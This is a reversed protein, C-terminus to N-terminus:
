IFLNRNSVVELKGDKIKKLIESWGDIKNMFFELNDVIEKDLYIKKIKSNKIGNLSAWATTIVSKWLEKYNGSLKELNFFTNNRLDLQQLNPFTKLRKLHNIKNGELYLSEISKFKKKDAKNAGFLTDASIDNWIASIRKLNKFNELNKIINLWWDTQKDICLYEINKSTKPDIRNGYFEVLFNNSLNLEKIKSGLFIPEWLTGFYEIENNSLNINILNPLQSIKPAASLIQDDTIGSNSLDLFWNWNYKEIASALNPNNIEYNPNNEINTKFNFLSKKTEDITGDITDNISDITWIQEIM